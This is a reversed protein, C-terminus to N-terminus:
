NWPAINPFQSFHGDFALYFKINFTEMLKFSTADTFSWGKDQYKLIVKWSQNFIKQSVFIINFISSKLLGSGFQKMKSFEVGRSKLTTILEDFIYDSYYLAIENHKLALLLKEKTQNASVYNTDEENYLAILFSTDVFISESM